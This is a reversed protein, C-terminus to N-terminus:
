LILWFWRAAIMHGFLDLAQQYADEGHSAEPVTAMSSLVKAHADKEYAYWNRFRDSMTISM